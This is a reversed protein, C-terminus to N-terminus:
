AGTVLKLRAPIFDQYLRGKILEAFTTEQETTIWRMPDLLPEANKDGKNHDNRFRRPKCHFAHGRM